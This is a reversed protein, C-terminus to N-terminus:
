GTEASGNAAYGGSGTNGAMKAALREKYAANLVRGGTGDKTSGKGYLNNPNDTMNQKSLWNKFHRPYDEMTKGVIASGTLHRNFAENWEKLRQMPIQREHCLVSRTAQYLDKWYVDYCVELSRMATTNSDPLTAGILLLPPAGSDPPEKQAESNQPKDDEKKEQGAKQLADEVPQQSMEGLEGGSSSVTSSGKSSVVERPSPEPLVVQTNTSHKIFEKSSEDLRYGLSILYTMLEPENCNRQKSPKDVKQHKRFTRIYYFSEGRHTFPILVDLAELRNLWTSFTEIRLTTKYPFIQNKLWGPNAKVVGYDDAFNWTGIYTLMISENEQGIKEDNWFEPKVTRIRPM